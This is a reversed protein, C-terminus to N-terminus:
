VKVLEQLSKDASLILLFKERASLCRCFGPIILGQTPLPSNTYALKISQCVQRPATGPPWIHGDRGRRQGSM